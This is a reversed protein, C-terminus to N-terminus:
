RRATMAKNGADASTGLLDEATIRVVLVNVEPTYLGGRYKLTAIQAFERQHKTIWSLCADKRQPPPGSMSALVDRCIDVRITRDEDAMFFSVTGFAISMAGSIFRLPM